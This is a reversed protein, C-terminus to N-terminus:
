DCSASVQRYHRLSDASYICLALWVSVFAAIQAQSIPENYVSVALIFTCSPAIYQLFGVTSLHLRKAGETFLLLPLGTVLASGMIFIDTVISVRFIVGTGISDLYYLYILAPLSLILTEVCLGPLPAVPIVKRILGYFGFSFALTLSVWPFEGVWLALYLVGACALALALIQPPRLREGLFITGLLVNVLPTIYYGLSTQLIHDNNIAWIFILWNCAVILTTFILVFFTRPNRVAARLEGWRKQLLLLPLLFVFSWVIRHMLIEFAPVAKLMKWYIPSIGWILFAPAAYAVGAVSTHAPEKNLINLEKEKPLIFFSRGDKM